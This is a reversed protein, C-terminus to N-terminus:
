KYDCIFGNRDNVLVFETDDDPDHQTDEDLEFAFSEILSTDSAESYKRNISQAM